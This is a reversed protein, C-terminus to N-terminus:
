DWNKHSLLNKIHNYHHNGHWAYKCINEAVTVEVHGEPHTYCKELDSESLRRLLYVLKGHLAKLYTLSLAIPATRADFLESWDKEQYAKILAKNETL